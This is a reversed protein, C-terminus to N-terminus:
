VEKPKIKNQLQIFLKLEENTLASLDPKPATNLEGEHSITQKDGYKKPRMKGLAWKYTDVKLRRHGLMEKKTLKNEKLNGLADYTRCYEEYWQPNQSVEVMEEFMGDARDDCAKVYDDELQFDKMHDYFMTRTMEDGVLLAKSLSM